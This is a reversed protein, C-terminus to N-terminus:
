ACGLQRMLNLYQEADAPRLALIHKLTKCADQSRNNSLQIELVKKFIPLAKQPQKIQQYVSALRFLISEDQPRKQALEQLLLLIAKGNRQRAYFQLLSDLESIAGVTDGLRFNLEIIMKRAKTDSPDLNKINEYARLAQRTDLRTLEVDALKHLIRIVVQKDIHHRQAIQIAQKLTTRASNYDALNIQAEALTQYQEVIEDYREEEELLEIIDQRLQVDLPALQIVENYIERARAKNGRALYTDAIQRYKQIGQDIQGMEVLIQGVRQHAALFDPQKEIIYFAEDMALNYKRQKIYRDVANISEVIEPPVSAIEIIDGGEPSQIAGELQHRTVEVRQKWDNGTLLEFFRATIQELEVKDSKQLKQLLRQYVADLQGAESESMAMSIDVYQMTLILHRAAEEVNGLKMHALGIGHYAGAMLEHDSTAQEFYNIAKKPENQKLLLEGICLNLPPTNINATVAQQYAKLAQTDERVRHLEIAKVLAIAGPNSMLDFDGIFVALKELAREVAEGIPGEPNYEAVPEEVIGEDDFGTEDEKPKARLREDAYILEGGSRIAQLMNLAQPNRPDLRLAREVAQIAIQTKGQRQFNAALTLYERVAQKKDGIREYAIALKQHIKILGPTVRTAREWNGIAKELDRRALYVEAVQLYQAAADQLRGMREFVDASKELPLPDDPSLEHARQYVQLAEQLRPPRVNILALGLSNYAEPLDPRARIAMSYAQIAEEWNKRWAADHGANMLEEYSYESAQSSPKAMSTM